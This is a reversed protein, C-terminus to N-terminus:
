YRLIAGIKNYKKLAGDEYFYIDGKQQFVLEIVEDVLDEIFYPGNTEEVFIPQNGEFRTPQHYNEEVLLIGVRGENTLNWIDLLGFAAKKKGFSEEFNKLVEKKETEYRSLLIEFARKGLRNVDSKSFSGEIEGIFDKKNVNNLLLSTIKKVGALIVPHGKEASLEFRKYLERVYIKLKELQVSEFGFRSPEESIEVIDSLLFPFYENDIETLKDDFGSFLATWNENLNILYYEFSRYYQKVLFRTEFTDDVIVLEPVTFPFRYIFHKENNVFIGLGDLMKTYDIEDVVNRTKELLAQADRKDVKSILKKELDKLLNKILTKEKSVDVTIRTTPMFISISPYSRAKQLSLIQEKLM